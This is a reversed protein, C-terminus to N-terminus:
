LHCPDTLHRHLPAVMFDSGERPGDAMVCVAVQATDAFFLPEAQLRQDDREIQVYSPLLSAANNRRELGFGGLGIRRNKSNFDKPVAIPFVSIDFHLPVQPHAM